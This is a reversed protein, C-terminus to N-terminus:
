MTAYQAKVFDKVKKWFVAAKESALIGGEKSEPKIIGEVIKGLDLFYMENWAPAFGPVSSALSLINQAFMQPPDDQEIFTAMQKLLSSLLDRGEESGRIRELMSVMVPGGIQKPPQNVPVIGPQGGQGQAAGAQQLAGLLGPVDIKSGINKFLETWMAGPAMTSMLDFKEMLHKEKENFMEQYAGMKDMVNEHTEKIREDLIKVKVEDLSQRKIEHENQLSQMSTIFTQQRKDRDEADTKIREIERRWREEDREKDLEYKKDLMALDHERRRQEEAERREQRERELRADERMLNLIRQSNEDSAAMMQQFNSSQMQVLTSLVGTVEGIVAGKQGPGNFADEVSKRAIDRVFGADEHRVPDNFLAGQDQPKTENPDYGPAAEIYIPEDDRSLNESYEWEGQSTKRYVKLLFAGGEPRMAQLDEPHVINPKSTLFSEADGDLIKYVKTMYKEKEGYERSIKARFSRDAHVDAATRTTVPIEEEEVVKRKKKPPPQQSRHVLFEPLTDGATIGELIAQFGEDEDDVYYQTLQSGEPTKATGSEFKGDKIAQVLSKDTVGLINAARKYHIEAM